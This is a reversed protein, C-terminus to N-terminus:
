YRKMIDIMSGWKTKREEMFTGQEELDPFEKAELCKGEILYRNKIKTKM